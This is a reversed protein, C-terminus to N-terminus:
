AQKLMGKAKVLLVLYLIIGVIQLIMAIASLVAGATNAFLGAIIGVAYVIAVFLSMKNSFEAVPTNQMLLALSAIGKCVFIIVFINLLGAVTTLIAHGTGPVFSAIIQCILAILTCWLAASFYRTEDRKAQVLGVLNLIFAIIACVAGAVGAIAVGGLGLLALDGAGAVSGEALAGAVAFAAAIAAIGVLLVSILSLIEAIFIKNIGKYANPYRMVMVEENLNNQEM